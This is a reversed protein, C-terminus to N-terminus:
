AEEPHEGNDRSESDDSVSHNAYPYDWPVGEDLEANTRLDLGMDQFMSLDSRKRLELVLDDRRASTEKIEELIALYGGKAAEIVKWAEDKKSLLHAMQGDAMAIYLAEKSEDDLAFLAYISVSLVTALASAETISTPRAGRELKAVTTQRMPTGAETMAKALEEQTLGLAQRLIRVNKGFAAATLDATASM